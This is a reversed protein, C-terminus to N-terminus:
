KCAESALRTTLYAGLGAFGLSEAAVLQALKAVIRERAYRM